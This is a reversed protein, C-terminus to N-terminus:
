MLKLLSHRITYWSWTSGGLVVLTQVRGAMRQMLFLAAVSYMFCYNNQKTQSSNWAPQFSLTACDRLWTTLTAETWICVSFSYNTIVTVNLFRRSREKGLSSLLLRNSTLWMWLTSHTTGHSLSVSTNRVMERCSQWCSLSLTPKEIGFAQWMHGQTSTFLWFGIGACKRETVRILVRSDIWSINEEQLNGNERAEPAVSRELRGGPKKEKLSCEDVLSVVVTYPVDQFPKKM